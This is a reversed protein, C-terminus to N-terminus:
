FTTFSLSPEISFLLRQIGKPTKRYSYGENVYEKGKDAFASSKSILVECVLYSSM